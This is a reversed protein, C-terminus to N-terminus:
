DLTSRAVQFGARAYRRALRHLLIADGCKSVVADAHLGPGYYACDGVREPAPGCLFHGCFCVCKQQVHRRRILRAPVHEVQYSVEPPLPSFPGTSQCKLCTTPAPHPVDETPLEAKAKRHAQRKKQGAAHRADAAEPSLDLKPLASTRKKRESKQGYLTQELDAIRTERAVLTARLDELLAMLDLILAKFMVLLSRTAPSEAAADLDLKEIDERSM